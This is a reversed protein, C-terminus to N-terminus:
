HILSQALHHFSSQGTVHTSSEISQDTIHELSIWSIKMKVDIFQNNDSM